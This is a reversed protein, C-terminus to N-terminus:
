KTVYELAGTNDSHMEFEQDAASSVDDFTMEPRNKHRVFFLKRQWTGFM